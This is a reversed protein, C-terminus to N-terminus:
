ASASNDIYVVERNEEDRIIDAARRAVWLIDLLQGLTNKLENRHCIIDLMGHEMLFEACQFGDPLRRHITQEIVRPGAFGIMTGPEAIMVDGLSAYSAAVGGMVPHTFVSIFPIGAKKLHAVATSTKAMQMLSLMGEHMRAGGGGASISVFPLREELAREMGRTVREGVVSGMSGGMFTFDSVCLVCEIGGIRSYGCQVAEDLGTKDMTKIIKKSYDLFGLSDKSRMNTEFPKFAGDDAILAIRLGSALMFHHDCQPCVQNNKELEKTYLLENCSPCKQMVGSPIDIKKVTLKTYTRKPKTFWSM